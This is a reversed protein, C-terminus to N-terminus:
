NQQSKLQELTSNTLDLKKLPRKPQVVLKKLEEPTLVTKRDRKMETPVGSRSWLEMIPPDGPDPLKHDPLEVVCANRFALIQERDKDSIIQPISIGDGSSWANLWAKQLTSRQLLAASVSLVDHGLSETTNHLLRIASERHVNQAPPIKKCMIMICLLLLPGRLIRKRVLVKM